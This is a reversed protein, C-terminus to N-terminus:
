ACQECAELQPHFIQEARSFELELRGIRVQRPAVDEADDELDIREERPLVSTLRPM